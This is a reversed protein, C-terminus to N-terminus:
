VGCRIAGVRRLEIRGSRPLWVSSGLPVATRAHRTSLTQCVVVIVDDAKARNFGFTGHVSM